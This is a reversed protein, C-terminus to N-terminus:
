VGSTDSRTADQDVVELIQRAGMIRHLRRPRLQVCQRREYALEVFALRSGFGGFMVAM